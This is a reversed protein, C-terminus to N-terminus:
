QMRYMAAMTREAVDAVPQEDLMEMVVKGLFIISAPAVLRRM